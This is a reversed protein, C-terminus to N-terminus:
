GNGCTAMKVGHNVLREVGFAKMVDAATVATITAGGAVLSPVLTFPLHPLAPATPLSLSYLSCANARGYLWSACIIGFTGPLYAAPAATLLLFTHHISSSGHLFHSSFARGLGVRRKHMGGPRCCCCAFSLLAKVCSYLFHYSCLVAAQKLLPVGHFVGWRVELISIPLLLHLAPIGAVM